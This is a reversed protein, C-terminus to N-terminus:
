VTQFLSHRVQEKIKREAREIHGRVTSKKVKMLGAIREYSLQEAYHLVYADREKITLASLADDIRYKDDATINEPLTQDPLAQGLASLKDNDMLLSYVDRKDYGRMAYPQRGKDLWEIVYDLDSIMANYHRIDEHDKLTIAKDILQDRLQKTHRRTQKYEYLLNIM